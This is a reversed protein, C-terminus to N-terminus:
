EKDYDKLLDSFPNNQYRYEDESMLKWGDGHFKSLDSVKTFQLPVELVINEWLVEFIDLCNEYKKFNEECVDEYQVSFPYAVEELSVSDLLKMSGQITCRLFDNGEEDKTVEGQLQIPELAIIESDQYYSKPLEYVGSIDLSPITDSHLLSLDVEMRDGM